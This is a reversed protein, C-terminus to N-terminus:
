AWTSRVQVVKRFAALKDRQNMGTVSDYLGEVANIKEIKHRIPTALWRAVGQRKGTKSPKGSCWRSVAAPSVGFLKASASMSLGANTMFGVLLALFENLEEESLM